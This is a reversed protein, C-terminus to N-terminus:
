FQQCDSGNANAPDGFMRHKQGQVEALTYGLTSLFNPSATIITGDLRFQIMAQSRDLAALVAVVDANRHRSFVAMM